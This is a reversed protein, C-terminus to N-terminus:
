SAKFSWDLCANSHLGFATPHFKLEGPGVNEMIIRMCSWPAWNVKKGEKAKMRIPAGKTSALRSLGRRSAGRAAIVAIGVVLILGLIALSRADRLAAADLLTVGVFFGLWLEVIRLKGLEFFARLRSPRPTADTTM